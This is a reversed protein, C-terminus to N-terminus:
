FSAAAGYAAIPVLPSDGHERLFREFITQAEAFKGDSFQAGAGLLLAREAAATKPYENVVKLFDTATAVSESPTAASTVSRLRLLADNAAEETQSLQWRYTLAVFIIVLAGIGAWMLYRKNTEIWALVEYWRSSVDTADSSM